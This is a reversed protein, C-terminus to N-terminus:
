LHQENEFIIKLVNVLPFRHCMIFVNLFFVNLTYFVYMDRIMSGRENLNSLDFINPLHAHITDQAYKNECHGWALCIAYEYKCIILM